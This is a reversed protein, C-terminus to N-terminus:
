ARPDDVITAEVEIPEPAPAGAAAADNNATTAAAPEPAPSAAPEAAAARAAWAARVDDISRGCGSCFLHDGAVRAGCFPCLSSQQAEAQAREALEAIQARVQEREVDLAAIGDYLQERGVRAAPDDKTAEYWSAGLQAALNQRERTIERLRVEYKLNKAARDAVNTGRNLAASMSDLLNM